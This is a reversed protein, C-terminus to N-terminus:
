KSRNPCPTKRPKERSFHPAPINAARPFPHLGAALDRRFAPLVIGRLCAPAFQYRPFRCGEAGWGPPQYHAPNVDLVAVFSAGGLVLTGGAMLVVGPCVMWLIKGRHGIAIANL